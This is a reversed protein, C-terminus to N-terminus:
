RVVGALLESSAAEVSCQQQAARLLRCLRDAEDRGSFRTVSVQHWAQPIEDPSDIRGQQRVRLARERMEQPYRANLDRWLATLTSQHYVGSL